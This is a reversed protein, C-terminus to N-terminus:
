QATWDEVWLTTPYQHGTPTVGELWKPMIFANARFYLPIVPLEEAYLVQLGRWLEKQRAEGCEVELADIVRDMEANDFGTYNQGSWGNDATPIEESHLTSRPM